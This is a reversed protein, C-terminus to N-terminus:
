NYYGEKMYRIINKRILDKSENVIILELVFEISQTNMM